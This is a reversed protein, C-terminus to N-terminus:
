KQIDHNTHLRDRWDETQINPPPPAPPKPPSPLQKSILRPVDLVMEIWPRNTCYWDSIDKKATVFAEKIQERTKKDCPLSWSLGGATGALKSGALMYSLQVLGRPLEGGGLLNETSNWKWKQMVEYPWAVGHTVQKGFFSTSRTTAGTWFYYYCGGNGQEDEAGPLAAFMGTKPDFLHRLYQADTLHRVPNKEDQTRKEFDALNKDWWIKREAITKEASAIAGQTQVIGQSAKYKDNRLQTRTERLFDLADQTPGTPRGARQDEKMAQILENREAEVKALEADYYEISRQQAALRTRLGALEANMQAENEARNKLAQEKTWKYGSLEALTPKGDISKIGVMDELAPYVPDDKMTEWGTPYQGVQGLGIGEFTIVCDTGKQTWSEPRAMLRVVNHITLYVDQLNVDGEKNVCSELGMQLLQDLGIRDDPGSRNALFEKLKKYFDVEYGSRYPKDGRGEENKLWWPSLAGLKDNKYEICTMGARSKHFREIAACMNSVMATSEADSVRGKWLSYDSDSARAASLGLVFALLAISFSKAATNM